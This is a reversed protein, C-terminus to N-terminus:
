GNNKYKNKLNAFCATYYEDVCNDLIDIDVKGYTDYLVERFICEAYHLSLLLRNHKISKFKYTGTNILVTKYLNDSRSISALKNYTESLDVLECRVHNHIYNAHTVKELIKKTTDFVGRLTSKHTVDPM